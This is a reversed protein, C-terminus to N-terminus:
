ESEEDLRKPTVRSRAVADLTNAISEYDAAIQLMTQRAEPDRMAQAKVRAQRAKTRYTKADETM